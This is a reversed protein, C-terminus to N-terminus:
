PLRLRAGIGFQFGGVDLSVGNMTASARSYRLFAGGGVYRTVMYSLDVGVNGGVGTDSENRTSASIVPTTFPATEVVTTEVGVFDQKVSYISPGGFIAVDLKESLPVMWLAFIHVGSETHRLGSVPVTVSRPHDFFLPHPVSASVTTDSRGQLRSYGVGVAVNGWVRAGGSIDFFARDGFTVSSSFSATEDYIPFTGATDITQSQTQGAANINIFAQDEWRVMQAGADRALSSTFVCMAVLWITKQM